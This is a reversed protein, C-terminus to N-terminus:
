DANSRKLLEQWYRHAAEHHALVERKKQPDELRIRAMREQVWDVFFQASSKSIRREGGIEVYFPASSAFRFTEPNEASARVLFWGSREFHLQGLKGTKTAQDWPVRREIKGDRVIELFAVRDRSICTASIDLDLSKGAPATFIAGPLTDQKALNQPQPQPRSVYVSAEARLLPGNTVFVRGARLAEWWKDYTLEGPVHAYVRNYGVPNPLVGSASGASPPLRMGCNLMHYYIEQSWFGNGRPAPLRRVERPKGWAESEYMGARNMHNNALGVSDVAGLALWVPADWWFPKELDIWVGPQKRAETVFKMPPPYEPEARGFGLPQRLNFFLLAGGEREDEAALAHYFRNQDFRVLPRVLLRSSDDLTSQSNRKNQWRTIVPGVHLDEAKMLLEIDALPRHIHLDGSWWGDAAMNALRKLEIAVNALSDPKVTVTGRHSPYEPGREIEYFYEGPTLALRASGPCVFHDRWFPLNGAKQAKGAQNRLHIRCPLPEGKETVLFQIEGTDNTALTSGTGAFIFGAILTAWRYQM